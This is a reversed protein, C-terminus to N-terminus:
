LVSLCCPSILNYTLSVYSTPLYVQLPFADVLLALANLRVAANAASFARFLIPQYLRMLLADVAAAAQLKGSM